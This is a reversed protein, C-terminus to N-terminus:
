ASQPIDSFDADGAEKQAMKRKRKPGHGTSRERLKSITRRAELVAGEDLPRPRRGRVGYVRTRTGYPDGVKSLLPKPLLASAAM